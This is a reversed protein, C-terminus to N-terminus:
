HSRAEIVFDDDAGTDHLPAAYRRAQAAETCQLRWERALLLHCPMTRGHKMTAYAYTDARHPTFAAAYTYHRHRARFCYRRTSFHRTDICIANIMTVQAAKMIAYVPTAARVLSPSPILQRAPSSM